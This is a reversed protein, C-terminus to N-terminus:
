IEGPHVHERRREAQTRVTDQIEGIEGTDGRYRGSVERIDGRYRRQM